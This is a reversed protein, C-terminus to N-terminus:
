FEGAKFALGVIAVANDRQYRSIRGYGPPASRARPVRIRSCVFQADGVRMWSLESIRCLVDYRFSLLAANRAGAHGDPCEALKKELLDRNPGFSNKSRRIKTRAVTRKLLFVDFPGIPCLLDFLLHAVCLAPPVDSRQNGACYITNDACQFGGSYSKYDIWIVARPPTKPRRPISLRM